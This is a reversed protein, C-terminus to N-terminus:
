RGARATSAADLGSAWIRARRELFPNRPDAPRQAALAAALAEPPWRALDQLSRIGLAELQRARDLGLGRHAILAVRSRAAELEAVTVGARASWAARAEPDRTARLFREPSVLGAAALRSRTEPVILDLGALPVYVSDVLVPDAVAFMGIIAPPGLLGAAWRARVAGAASLRDRLGGMFRLIVLCEVAFPPFGLFGALPMEFLKMGEFGPVTYIWKMRAWYNWTEWLAGCALGAVLTRCFPGAEGAELDRLFSHRAHRRNWPEILFAFSGWTLPFFVQPWVLPLAFSLLGLAIVAREKGRTWALPRVRVSRLRGSNEALELTEVIGPLVSGFALGGAAWRLARTPLCMVYYWNGLRVDILEFSTWWLASVGALWAFHWPRDRLLSRGSLRRNM